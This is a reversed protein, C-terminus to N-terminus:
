ASRLGNYVGVLALVAPLASTVAWAPHGDRWLLPTLVLGLAGTVAFGGVVRWSFGPTAPAAGMPTGFLFHWGAFTLLSGFGLLIALETWRLGREFVADAPDRPNVWVSVVNGEQGLRARIGPWWDDLSRDRTQTFSLQETVHKAGEYEYALKGTFRRTWQRIGTRLDHSYDDGMELVVAPVQEWSASQLHRGVQWYATALLALGGLLIVSFVVMAALEGMSSPKWRLRRVRRLPQANAQM